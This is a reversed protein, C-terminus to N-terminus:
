RPNPWANVCDAILAPGQYILGTYIQVLNAGLKAKNAADQGSVIGGVGVIPFDAGLVERATKLTANAHEALPLGSLGGVENGHRESGVLPRDITTNTAILGDISSAGITELAATLASREWDPAIKILLPCAKHHKKELGDRVHVLEGLLEELHSQDQLQRLDQTNPSSVNITIYDAYPYVKEMCICYDKAAEDIPTQKQKGINAGVVGQYRRNKLREVLHDVGKNNFGLRNILALHKEVRFLRPRENGAQPNPTVTGVELFGFGLQGLADLHDGNKDLGAALGVPNKFHLGLLEVPRPPPAPFLKALVGLKAGMSISAMAMDHAKEPELCFLGHRLWRYM